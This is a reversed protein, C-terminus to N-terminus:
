WWAGRKRGWCTWTGRAAWSGRLAAAEWAELRALESRRRVTVRRKVLHSLAPEGKSSVASSAQSAWSADSRARHIGHLEGGFEEPSM